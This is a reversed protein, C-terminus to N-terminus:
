GSSRLDGLERLANSRESRETTKRLEKKLKSLLERALNEQRDGHPPKEILVCIAEDQLRCNLEATYYVDAYGNCVVGGEVILDAADAELIADEKLLLEKLLNAFVPHPHDQEIRLGVRLGQLPRNM